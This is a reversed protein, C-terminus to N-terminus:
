GELKDLRQRLEKLAEYVSGDTIEYYVLEAMGKVEELKEELEQLRKEIDAM